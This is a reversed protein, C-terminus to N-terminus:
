SAVAVILAVLALAALAARLVHSYEWRDRARAWDTEPDRPGRRGLPDFGFFGAGTAGLQQDRLWFRNVPHTLIWYAVHM